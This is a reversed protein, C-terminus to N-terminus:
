NREKLKRQKRSNLYKTGIATYIYDIVIVKSFFLDWFFFSTSKRYLIISWIKNTTLYIKQSNKKVYM